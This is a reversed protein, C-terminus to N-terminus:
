GFYKKNTNNNNQNNINSTDLGRGRRGISTQERRMEDDNLKNSDAQKIFQQLREIRELLQKNNIKNESIDKVLIELKEQILSFKSKKETSFLSSSIISSQIQTSRGINITSQPSITERIAVFEEFLTDLQSEFYDALLNDDNQQILNGTSLESEVHMIIQLDDTNQDKALRTYVCRSSTPLMIDAELTILIKNTLPCCLGAYVPGIKRGFTQKISDTMEALDSTMNKDDRIHFSGAFASLDDIVSKKYGSGIGVPIIPFATHNPLEPTGLAHNCQSIDQKKFLGTKVAELIETATEGEDGEGDTLLIFTADKVTDIPAFCRPSALNAAAKVITGILPTSGTAKVSHIKNEWDKPLSSKKCSKFIPAANFPILTICTNKPLEKIINICATNAAQMKNSGMSGSDDLLIIVHGMNDDSSPTSTILGLTPKTVTTIIPSETLGIRSKLDSALDDLDVSTIFRPAWKCLANKQQENITIHFATHTARYNEMTLKPFSERIETNMSSNLRNIYAEADFINSFTISYEPASINTIQQHSNNAKVRMRIVQEGNALTAVSYEAQMKNSPQHEYTASSALLEATFNLDQNAYAQKLSIDINAPHIRALHLLKHCDSAPIIIKHPYDKPVKHEEARTSADDPFVECFIDHILLQKGLIAFSLQSPMYFSCGTKEFLVYPAPEGFCDIDYTQHFHRSLRTSIGASEDNEALILISRLGLLHNYLKSGLTKKATDSNMNLFINQMSLLPGLYRRHDNESFNEDLKCHSFPNNLYSKNEIILTNLNNFHYKYFDTDAEEFVQSRTDFLRCQLGNLKKSQYLDHMIKQPHETKYHLAILKGVQAHSITIYQKHNEFGQISPPNAHTTPQQLKFGFHTLHQKLKEANEPTSCYIQFGQKSLEFFLNEKIFLQSYANGLCRSINLNLDGQCNYLSIMDELKACEKTISIPPKTVIISSHRFRSRTLPQENEVPIENPIEPTSSLIECEKYANLVIKIQALAERILKDDIDLRMDAILNLAQLLMAQQQNLSSSTEMESLKTQILKAQQLIDAIYSRPKMKKIEEIPKTTQM